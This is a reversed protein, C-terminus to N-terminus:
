KLSSSSALLPRFILDLQDTILSISGVVELNLNWSTLRRAVASQAPTLGRTKGHDSHLSFAFVSKPIAESPVM